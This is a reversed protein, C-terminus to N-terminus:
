RTIVYRAVCKGKLFLIDNSIKFFFILNQKTVGFLFVIHLMDLSNKPFQLSLLTIVCLLFQIIKKYITIYITSFRSCLLIFEYVSNSFIFISVTKITIIFWIGWM